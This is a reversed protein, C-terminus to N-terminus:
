KKEGKEQTEKAARQIAIVTPQTFERYNHLQGVATIIWLQGHQRIGQDVSWVECRRELKVESERCLDSALLACGAVINELVM